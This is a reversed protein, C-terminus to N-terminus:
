KKNQQRLCLAKWKSPWQLLMLKKRFLFKSVILCFTFLHSHLSVLVILSCSLWSVQAPLKDESAAKGPPGVYVTITLSM